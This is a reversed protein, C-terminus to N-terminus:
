AGSPYADLDLEALVPLHDSLETPIVECSLVRAPPTVLIYDIRATPTVAPYTAPASSCADSFRESLIRIVTGSPRENFDGCLIISPYQALAALLESAHRDREIADLGLHTAGVAIGAVDVVVCTRSPFGGTPSLQIRRSWSPKVPTLIANRYRTSWRPASENVHMGAARAITRASGRRVENLCAADVAVSRIFAGIQEPVANAGRMNFTLVRV